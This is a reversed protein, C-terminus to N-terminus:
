AAPLGVPCFFDVVRPQPSSPLGVLSAFGRGLAALDPSLWVPGAGGWAQWPCLQLCAQLCQSGQLPQLPSCKSASDLASLPQCLIDILWAAPLWGADPESSVADREKERECVCICVHTTHAHTRTCTCMHLEESFAGMSAGRSGPCIYTPDLQHSHQARPKM